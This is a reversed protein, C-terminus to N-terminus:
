FPTHCPSVYLRTMFMKIMERNLANDNWRASEQSQKLVSVFNLLFPHMM